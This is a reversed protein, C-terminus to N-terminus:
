APLLPLRTSDVDTYFPSDTHRSVSLASTLGKIGSCAPMNGLIVCLAANHQSVNTWHLCPFAGYFSTKKVAAEYVIGTHSSGVSMFSSSSAPSFFFSARPRSVSFPLFTPPFSPLFLPVVSFLFLDESTQMLNIHSMHLGDLSTVFVCVVGCVSRKSGWPGPTKRWVSCAASPEPGGCDYWVCNMASIRSPNQLQVWGRPHVGTGIQSINNLTADDILTLISLGRGSLYWPM